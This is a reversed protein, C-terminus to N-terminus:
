RLNPDSARLAQEEASMSQRAALLQQGFTKLSSATLEGSSFFTLVSQRDRERLEAKAAYAEARSFSGDDNLAVIALARGSMAGTASVGGKKLAAHAENAVKAADKKADDTEANARQAGISIQVSSSASATSGTDAGLANLTSAPVTIGRQAAVQQLLSSASGASSASDNNLYDFLSM